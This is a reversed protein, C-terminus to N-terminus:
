LGECNDSKTTMTAIREDIIRAWSTNKACKIGEGDATMYRCCSAGQGMKCIKKLRENDIIKSM